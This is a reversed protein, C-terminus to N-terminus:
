ERVKQASANGDTARCVLVHNRVEYQVHIHLILLCVQISGLNFQFALASLQRVSVYAILEARDTGCLRGYDISYM